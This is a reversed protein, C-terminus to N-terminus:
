DDIASRSALEELYDVDTLFGQPWTHSAKELHRSVNVFWKSAENRKDRKGPISNYTRAQLYYVERLRVADQCERFVSASQKLNTLTSQLIRIVATRGKPQAENARQLQCKGLTLYAEGAFWIHTHQLLSPLAANLLSVAQKTNRMRLQVQALVSLATAHHSDMAHKECMSLCELLPPLAGIFNYPSSDLDIIALQLLLSAHQM